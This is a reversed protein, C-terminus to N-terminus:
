CVEGRLVKNVCDKLSKRLPSDISYIEFFCYANERQILLAYGMLDVFSDCEILEKQLSEVGMKSAIYELRAMKLSLFFAKERAYTANGQENFACSIEKIRGLMFKFKGYEKKKTKLIEKAKTITEQM